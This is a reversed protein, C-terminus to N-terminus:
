SPHSSLFLWFLTYFVTVITLVEVVICDRRLRHSHELGVLSGDKARKRPHTAM